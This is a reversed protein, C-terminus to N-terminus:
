CGDIAEIETNWKEQTQASENQFSFSEYDRTGDPHEVIYYGMFCDPRYWEDSKSDNSKYSEVTVFVKDGAELHQQWKNEMIKYSGRNLNRNQAELNEKKAPGFFRSGIFHGGDDDIERSAGGVTQQQKADRTAKKLTLVGYAVKGKSTDHYHYNGQPNEKFLDPNHLDYELTRRRNVISTKGEPSLRWAEEESIEVLYGQKVLDKPGMDTVYQQTNEAGM